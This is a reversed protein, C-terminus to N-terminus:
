KRRAFILGVLGLGMLILTAPEPVSAKAEFLTNDASRDTYAIGGLAGSYNLMMYGYGAVDSAV